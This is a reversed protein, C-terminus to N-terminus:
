CAVGLFDLAVELVPALALFARATVRRSAVALNTWALALFTGMGASDLVQTPIGDRNCAM